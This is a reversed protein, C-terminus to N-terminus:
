TGRKFAAKLAEVAPLPKGLLCTELAGGATSVYSFSGVLGFSEAAGVTHGGGIVSYAKSKTVAIMLEKTGLAFNKKEIMGAPGSMFVTKAGSIVRAFKYISGKGIDLIPYDLPLEGVLIEKRKGDMEVAIDYPLLVRDGKEALLKKAEALAEPSVEKALADENPKGLKVGRAKLFANGTLGVLIVMSAIKKSIIRDVVKVSDGFKAGGLVFISPKAPNDFVNRLANLEKEMLRGAASPLVAEFGVLSCHARHASAFADCVYYDALPALTKVLESQAHEEMTKKEQEYPLERVNKLMIAEGSQLSRIASVSKEGLIDDVYRIEKGMVTSLVRAHRDLPSFDWDGPRGQHALIVVKAGKNMLEKVTPMIQRIRNDDEIELTEKALPCNIDVRLLVTKDQFNFDDLTSFEKM